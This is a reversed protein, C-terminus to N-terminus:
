DDQKRAWAMLAAAGTPRKPAPQELVATDPKTVERQAASDAESFSFVPPPDEHNGVPHAGSHSSSTTATAVTPTKADTVDSLDFASGEGPTLTTDNDNRNVMRTAVRTRALVKGDGSESLSGPRDNPRLLVPRRTSQSTTASPRSREQGPLRMVGSASANGNKKATAQPTGHATRAPEVDTPADFDKPVDLADIASHDGSDFREALALVRKRADSETEVGGELFAELDSLGPDDLGFGSQSISRARRSSPNEDDLGAVGLIADVNIDSVDLSQDESDTPMCSHAM